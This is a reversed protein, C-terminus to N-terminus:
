YTISSWLTLLFTSRDKSLGISLIHTMRAVNVQLDTNNIALTTPLTDDYRGTMFCLTM